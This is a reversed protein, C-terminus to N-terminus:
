KKESNILKGLADIKKSLSDMDKKTVLDLEQMVRETEARITKQLDQREEEGREVLQDIFGRADETKLEGRKVLGNVFTEAKEQTISLLGVGALVSQEIYNRM